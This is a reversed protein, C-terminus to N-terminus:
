KPGIAHREASTRLEALVSGPEGSAARLIRLAARQRALEAQILPSELLAARGAADLVRLDAERAAFEDVASYSREAAHFAFKVDDSHVLEILYFLAAIADEAQPAWENWDDEEPLMEEVTASSPLRSSDFSPRELESWVSDTTDRVFEPDGVGELAAFRFYSPVLVEVCAVAFAVRQWATLSALDERLRETDFTESV